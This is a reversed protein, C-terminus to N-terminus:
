REVREAVALCDAEPLPPRTARWRTFWRDTLRDLEAAFRLEHLYAKRCERFSASPDLREAAAAQWGYLADLVRNAHHEREQQQARELSALRLEEPAFLTRGLDWTARAELWVSTGGSLTQRLPDYSTPMTAATESTLRMARLRLQPLAASARARGRLEQLLQDQKDLGAHALGEAVAAAADAGRISLWRLLARENPPAATPASVALPPTSAKDSAAPTKAKEDAVRAEVSAKPLLFEDWPVSLWIGGNLDSREPSTRWGVSLALNPHTGRGAVAAEGADLTRPSAEPAGQAHARYPSALAFLAAAFPVLRARFSLMRTM